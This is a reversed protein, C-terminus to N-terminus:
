YISDRLCPAFDKGGLLLGGVGVRPERGGVIQVGNPEIWEYVAKWNLGTGITATKKDASLVKKKLNQLAIVVGDGGVANYGPIDLNGASRVAFKTNTATLVKMVTAVEQANNPTV